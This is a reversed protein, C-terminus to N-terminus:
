VRSGCTWRLDEAKIYALLRFVRLWLVLALMDPVWCHGNLMM